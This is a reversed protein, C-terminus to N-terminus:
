AALPEGSRSGSALSVAPVPRLAREVESGWVLRFLRASLRVM